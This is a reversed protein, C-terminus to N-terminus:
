RINFRRRAESIIRLAHPKVIETPLGGNNLTVSESWNCGDQDPLQLPVIGKIECQQCDEQKRLENTMWNTLEQATVISRNM